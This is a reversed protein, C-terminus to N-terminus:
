PRRPMCVVTIAVSGTATAEGGTDFEVVAGKNISTSVVAANSLPLDHSGTAHTTAISFADVYADNDAKNGFNFTAAATGPAVIVNYTIQVIELDCPAVFAAQNVVAATHLNMVPSNFIVPTKGDWVMDGSRYSSASGAM